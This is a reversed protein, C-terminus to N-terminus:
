CLNRRSEHRLLLDALMVLLPERAKTDTLHRVFHDAELMFEAAFSQPRLDRSQPFTQVDVLNGPVHLVDLPPADELTADPTLRLGKLNRIPAAATRRKNSDNSLLERIIMVCVALTRRERSHCLIGLIM